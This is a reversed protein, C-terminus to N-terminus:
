FLDLQLQVQKREPENVANGVGFGILRVAQKSLDIQKMM